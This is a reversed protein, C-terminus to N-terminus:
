LYYGGSAAVDGLSAVVIQGKARCRLIEEYIEQVAAVTGGPSNIRLLIAKVEEDESLEHLQRVIDDADPSGWASASENVHILGDIHVVALRGSRSKSNLLASKWHAHPLLSLIGIVLAVAYFIFVGSLLRDRKM